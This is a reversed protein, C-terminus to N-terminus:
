EINQIQERIKELESKMEVVHRTIELNNAKSGMTNIERNMEQILFDMKKGESVRKGILGKLQDIHSKLRVIEEDISCKDAYLAVETIIRSEDLTDNKIFEDLRKLLRERYEIPVQPAIEEVESLNKLIEENKHLIDQALKSGEENKMQIIRDLASNLVSCAIDALKDEDEELAKLKIVDGARTIDSVNLDNEINLYDGLTDYAEKYIKALNKDVYVEYKGESYCEYTVYVEIKGRNIKESIMNKFKDEMYQFQRPLRITIDLYRHNVSKIEFKFYHGEIVNESKGYGTM